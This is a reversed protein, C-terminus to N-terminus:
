LAAEQDADDLPMLEDDSLQYDSLDGEQQGGGSEAAAATDSAQRTRPSVRGKQRMESKRKVNEEQQRKRSTRLFSKREAKEKLESQEENSKSIYSHFLVEGGMVGEEIKVLELKM